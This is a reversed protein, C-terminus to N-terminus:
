PGCFLPVLANYGGTFDTGNFCVSAPHDSGKLLDACSAPQVYPKCVCSEATATCANLAALSADDTVKCNVCAADDCQSLAVIDRACKENCPELLAVCGATNLSVFGESTHDVLPGLTAATPQTLICQACTKGEATALFSQCAQADGTGLCFTRFNDIQAQTCKGQHAGSPPTFSPTFGALNSLAVCQGGDPPAADPPQTCQGAGADPDSTVPVCGTPGSDNGSRADGGGADSTSGDASSSGDSTPGGDDTVDIVHTTTSCAAGLFAVAAFSSIAVLATSLRHKM